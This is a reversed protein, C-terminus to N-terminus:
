QGPSILQAQRDISTETIRVTQPIVLWTTTQINTFRFSSNNNDIVHLVESCLRCTLTGLMISTTTMGNQHAINRLKNKVQHIQPQYWIAVVSVATVNQEALTGWLNITMSNVYNLVLVWCSILYRVHVKVCHVRFSGSNASIVCFLAMVGNLTM